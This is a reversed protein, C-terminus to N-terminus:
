AARTSTCRAASRQRDPFCGARWVQRRRRDSPGDGGHARAVPPHARDAAATRGLRRTNGPASSWATARRPPSATRWRRCADERRRHGAAQGAARRDHRRLNRARRGGAGLLDEQRQPGSFRKSFFAASGPTRAVLLVGSTDKDLRHVLRPRPEDEGAIPMSCGTSTAAHDQDRGAHCPGAAQQARARCQHATILMDEAQRDREETLQRRTRAEHASADEGGPPVRLVQGAALRDDPKARKGDVRLQGTRAWRSVM